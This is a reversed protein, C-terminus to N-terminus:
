QKRQAIRSATIYDMNRIAEVLSNLQSTTDQDPTSLYILSNDNGCCLHNGHILRLNTEFSTVRALWKIECEIIYKYITNEADMTRDWAIISTIDKKNFLIRKCKSPIEDSELCSTNDSLVQLSSVKNTNLCGPAGISYPSYNTWSGTGSDVVASIPFPNLVVFQSDLFGSSFGDPFEWTMESFNNEIARTCVINKPPSTRWSDNPATWSICKTRGITRAKLYTVEITLLNVVRTASWGTSRECCNSM